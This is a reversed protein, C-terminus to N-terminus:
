PKTYKKNGVAAWMREWVANQLLLRQHSPADRGVLSDLLRLCRRMEEVGRDWGASGSLLSAANETAAAAQVFFIHTYNSASLLSHTM